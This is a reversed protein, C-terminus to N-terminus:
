PTSSAYNLRHRVHLMGQRWLELAPYSTATTPSGAPDLINTVGNSLSWANNDWTMRLRDEDTM